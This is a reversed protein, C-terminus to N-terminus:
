KSKLIAEIANRQLSSKFGSHGFYKKLKFSLDDGLKVSSEGM